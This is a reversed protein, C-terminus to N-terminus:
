KSSSLVRLKKNSLKMDDLLKHAKTKNLEASKVSKTIDPSLESPSLEKLDKLLEDETLNPENLYKTIIEDIKKKDTTM